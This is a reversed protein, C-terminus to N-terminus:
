RFTEIYAKWLADLSKGTYEEFLADSYTRNRMAVNLKKVFEKDYNKEVWIFFGAATKSSDTYSVSDTDIPPLPVDPEYHAYRIYDAIGETIWVPETRRSYGQIIRALEHMVKGFVEPTRKIEDAPIVIFPGTSLSTGNSFTIGEKKRFILTIEQPPTGDAELLKDFKPYYETVLRSAKGAWEHIGEQQLVEEGEFQVTVRVLQVPKREAPPNDLATIDWIRVTKDDSISVVKRGDPSFTVFRIDQSTHGELKLLEHRSETDWIRVTKDRSGTVIKKGDHSFAFTGVSGTHGRLTGLGEGRANTTWDMISVSNNAGKQLHIRRGDPFFFIYPRYAYDPYEPSHYPYYGQAQLKKLEKGSEADWIRTSGDTGQTAINKGDPSFAVFYIMVRTNERGSNGHGVLQLLEKGSEADWIRATGDHGGTVIKTGDPSFAVASLGDTDVKGKEDHKELKRLEKGSETDWIRAEIYWFPVDATFGGRQRVTVLKKGDPSFAAAEVNDAHGELKLVIPEDAAQVGSALLMSLCFLSSVFLKSVTSM